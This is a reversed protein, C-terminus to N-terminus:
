PVRLVGARSGFTSDELRIYSADICDKISLVFCPRAGCVLQLASTYVRCHVLSLHELRGGHQPSGGDGAVTLVNFLLELSKHGPESTVTLTRLQSASALLEIIRRETDPLSEILKLTTLATLNLKPPWEDQLYDQIHISTLSARSWRMRQALLMDFYPNFSAGATVRVDLPAAGARKLWLELIPLGKETKLPWRRQNLPARGPGRSHEETYELSFRTWMGPSSNAANLFSRCTLLFPHTKTEVKKSHGSLIFRFTEKTGLTLIETLLESPFCRDLFLLRIEMIIHVSDKGNQDLYADLLTASGDMLQSHSWQSPPAVIKALPELPMRVLHAHLSQPGRRKLLKAQSPNNTMAAYVAEIVLKVSTDSPVFIEVTDSSSGGCLWCKLAIPQKM